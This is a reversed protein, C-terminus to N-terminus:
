GMMCALTASKPCTTRTRPSLITTRRTRTTTQARGCRSACNARLCSSTLVRLLPGRVAAQAVKRAERGGEDDSDAAAAASVNNLGKIKVDKAKFYNCLSSFEQSSVIDVVHHLLLMARHMAHAPSPACRMVNTFQHTSGGKLAIILDFNRTTATAGQSSM